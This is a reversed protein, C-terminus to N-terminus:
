FSHIESKKIGGGGGGQDFSRSYITKARDTTLRLKCMLKQITHKLLAFRIHPMCIVLSARDLPVLTLSRTVKIYFTAKRVKNGGFAYHKVFM